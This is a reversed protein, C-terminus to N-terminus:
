KREVLVSEAGKILIARDERRDGPAQTWLLLAAAGTAAAQVGLPVALFNDRRALQVTGWVELATVGAFAFRLANRGLRRRRVRRRADSSAALERIRAWDIPQGTADRYTPHEVEEFPPVQAVGLSALLAIM